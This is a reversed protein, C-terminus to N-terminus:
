CSSHFIPQLISLLAFSYGVFGLYTSLSCIFLRRRLSKLVLNQKTTIEINELLCAIVINSRFYEMSHEGGLSGLYSEHM